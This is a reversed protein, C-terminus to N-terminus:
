VLASVALPSNPTYMTLSPPVVGYLILNLDGPKELREANSCIAFPLLNPSRIAVIPVNSKTIGSISLYGGLDGLPSKSLVVIEIM